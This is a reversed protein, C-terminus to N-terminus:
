RRMQRLTAWAMWGLLIAGSVLVGWLIWRKWDPEITKSLAAPGALEVQGIIRIQDSILREQRVADFGSLLAHGSVPGMRGSGYALTFPAEGRAAFRLSHPLWGVVIEPAVAGFGGGSTDVALKWYPDRIRQVSLETQQLPEGEAVLKYIRGGGRQLWGQEPATRSFLTARLLTNMEAPMIQLSVVTLPGPLEFLYEGAREGAELQDVTLWNPPPLKSAGNFLVSAGLLDIMKSGEVSSLRLYKKRTNGLTIQQKILREGSYRLDAIVAADHYTRWNQLDNSTEVKLRYVFGQSEVRWQLQLAHVPRPEDEEQLQLLYGYLVENRATLHERTAVSVRDEQWEHPARITISEINSDQPAYLPFIKVQEAVEAAERKFGPLHLDHPVVVGQGNFVRLDGLDRRVVGAYVDLPLPLQYFPSAGMLEFEMGWAFDAPQPLPKEAFSPVAMVLLLPLMKWYSM